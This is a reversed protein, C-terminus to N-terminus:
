ACRSCAALPAQHGGYVHRLARVLQNRAAVLNREPLPYLRKFVENAPVPSGEPLGLDDRVERVARDVAARAARKAPNPVPERTLADRTLEPRWGARRWASPAIRRANVLVALMSVSRGSPDCSRAIRNMVRRRHCGKVSVALGAAAAPM